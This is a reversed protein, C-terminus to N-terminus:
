NKDGTLQRVRDIERQAASEGEYTQFWPQAGRPPIPHDFLAGDIGSQSCPPGSPPTQAAM